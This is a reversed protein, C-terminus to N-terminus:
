IPQMHQIMCKKQSALSRYTRDRIKMQNSTIEENKLNISARRCEETPVPKVHEKTILRQKKGDLNRSGKNLSPQM